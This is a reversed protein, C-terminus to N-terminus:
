VKKVEYGEKELFEKAENIYKNHRKEAADRDREIEEDIKKKEKEIRLKKQKLTEYSTEITYVEISCNRDEENREESSYGEYIDLIVDIRKEDSTENDIRCRLESLKDVFDEFEEKTLILEGYTNEGELEFEFTRVENTIDEEIHRGRYEM